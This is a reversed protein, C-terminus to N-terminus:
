TVKGRFYSRGDVSKGVCIQGRRSKQRINLKLFQRTENLSNAYM